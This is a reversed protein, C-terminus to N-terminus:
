RVKAGDAIDALITEKDSVLKKGHVFVIKDKVTFQVKAFDDYTIEATHANMQGELHVLSGPASDPAQLPIVKDGTDAALMMGQSMVGRLKAPKLNAVVVIHKGLLQEPTLFARLGAVLQRQEIGLDIKLVYLKDADPHNNVEIIKAVKLHLPFDASTAKAAEQKKGAFQTKFGELTKDEVKAFLVQVEGLTHHSPLPHKGLDKWQLPSTNLQRFINASVIPMFPEILIALDKILQVLNALARQAKAPDEKIAKWPAQEQFYVNGKKSLMMIDRLAQKIEIQEMLQTITAIEEDYELEKDYAPVKGECYNAIFSLTRNVLNGINAVLENNIKEGFDKWSFETDMKEPRNVMLYYRWVDAPIGTSKADDGFVGVSRSKSFKGGEYNLYENVALSHVLAYKEKTGLLFAPFLITHFPINDKGMFQVLRVSDPDKWWQQWDKRVQATIGIYGIPADFWSYFVKNEFGARPVKVGWELDRTICRPRLGDKLWGQTMTRANLSWNKSVSDIWQRLSEETKPLDFFLHRSDKEVPVSGSLRSKPDILEMPSDFLTSCNDCQDGRAGDFGCKPCTGEVFRDALFKNKVPDFAQKITDEFIFGNEELHRYIDQTIDTNEKSSTRGFCDYHCHFWEYIEKHLAFFRDCCEKPSIGMEMAKVETTTGHEDTGLVSIVEYGASRLYRTYVDASVVCVLTGLHPVNNVYPLASTVLIKKAKMKPSSYSVM